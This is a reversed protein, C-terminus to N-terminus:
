KNIIFKKVVYKEKNNIVKLYYIGNSFNKINIKNNKTVLIQKGLLNYLIVNSIHINDNVVINIFENTPNPYVNVLDEELLDDEVSLNISYCSLDYLETIDNASLAQNYLRIEGLSGGFYNGTADNGFHMEENQSTIAGNINSTSAEVGDVYLKYQGSTYTLAYFHWEDTNSINATLNQFSGGVNLKLEIQNTNTTKLEFSNQKFLIAGSWTTAKAWATFSLTNTPSNFPVSKLYQSTGNLTIYDCTNTNDYAPSNFETANIEYGSNDRSDDSWRWQGIMDETLHNVPILNYSLTYAVGTNMVKQLDIEYHDINYRSHLEKMGQVHNKVVVNDFLIKMGKGNDNKIFIQTRPINLSNDTTEELTIGDTKVNGTVFPINEWFDFLNAGNPASYSLDVDLYGDYFFYKRLYNIGRDEINGTVELTKASENLSSNVNFYDEWYRLGSSNNLQAVFGNHYTPSWNAGIVSTGFDKNWFNTLGGGVFPTINSVSVNANPDTEDAFPTRLLEKKPLYFDNNVPHGVYISTYYTPTKIAYMQTAEGGSPYNINSFKKIFSGESQTPFVNTATSNAYNKYSKYSIMSSKGTFLSNPVSALRTNIININATSQIALESPTKRYILGVEPIDTAISKAGGWQERDFGFSTRHSFNFGSLLTNDPELATTHLLLDYVKILAQKALNKAIPDETEKYFSALHWNTMGNYSADIGTAEDFYGAGKQSGIFIKAYETSLFQYDLDNSAKAFSNFVLLSHASQNMASVLTNTFHRDVYRRMLETYVEKFLNADTTDPLNEVLNEYIDLYIVMIFQILGGPYSSAEGFPFDEGEGIKCTQFFANALTRYNLEDQHNYYPNFPEDLNALLSLARGQPHSWYGAGMHQTATNIELFNDWNGSYDTFYAGAYPSTSDINQTGISNLTAQTFLPEFAHLLFINKLPNNLWGDGINLTTSTITSTNGIKAPNLIQPMLELMKAQVKHSVSFTGAATTVEEVSAHIDLAAQHSTCLILPFGAFKFGLDSSTLTWVEGWESSSIPVVTNNPVISNNAKRVELTGGTFKLEEAKAPVYFYYTNSGTGTIWKNYTGNHFSIGYDLNESLAIRAGSRSYFGNSNFKIQHVGQEVLAFNVENNWSTTFMNLNNPYQTMSLSFLGDVYTDKPKFLPAAMTKNKYEWHTVREEPNFVRVMYQSKGFLSINEYDRNNLKMTVRAPNSEVPIYISLAQNVIFEGLEKNTTNSFNNPNAARDTIWSYTGVRSQTYANLFFLSTIFITIATRM